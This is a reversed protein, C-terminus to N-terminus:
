VFLSVIEQNPLENIKLRYPEQHDWYLIRKNNKDQRILNYANQWPTRYFEKIKYDETFIITILVDIKADKAYSIETKRNKNTHAKSHSKVQIFKGNCEIDWDKQINSLAIKGGYIESVLWEGIQSTFDKKNNMIGLRQLERLSLVYNRIATNIESYKSM